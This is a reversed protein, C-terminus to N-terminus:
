IFKKINYDNANQNNQTNENEEIINFKYGIKESNNNKIKDVLNQTESIKNIDKGGNEEQYYNNKFTM